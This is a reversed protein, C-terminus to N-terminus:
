IRKRLKDSLEDITSFFVEEETSNAWRDFNKIKAKRFMWKYETGKHPECIEYFYKKNKFWIHSEDIDQIHINKHTIIINILDIFWPNITIYKM